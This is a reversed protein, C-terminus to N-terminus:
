VEWLMRKTETQRNEMENMAVKELAVERSRQGRSTFAVIALEETVQVWTNAWGMKVKSCDEYMLGSM